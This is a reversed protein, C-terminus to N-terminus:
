LPVCWLLQTGGGELASIASSGGLREARQRLNELGMGHQEALPLETPAGDDTIALCLRDDVTLTVAFRTGSSHKGANTLGERVVALVHDASRSPCRTTSPGPSASRPTAIRPHRALEDVLELVGHRLGGPVRAPEGLEFIATRIETITADLEDVAKNVREVIAASDTM